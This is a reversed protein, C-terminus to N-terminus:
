EDEVEWNDFLRLGLPKLVRWWYSFDSVITTSLYVLYCWLSLCVIWWDLQSMIWKGRTATVM